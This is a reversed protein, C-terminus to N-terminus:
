TTEVTGALGDDFDNGVARTLDSLSGYVTLSPSVYPKRAALADRRPAGIGAKGEGTSAEGAPHNGLRM